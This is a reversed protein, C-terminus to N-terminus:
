TYRKIYRIKGSDYCRLLGLSLAMEHETAGVAGAGKLIPIRWRRKDERKGVSPNYYKYDPPLYSDIIFNNSVYVNHDKDVIDLDAFSRIISPTYQKEFYSLLKGFAGTVMSNAFRDLSFGNDSNKENGPIKNFGIASVMVDKHFLGIRISCIRSGLLHNGDMFSSFDNQSISRITTERAGIRDGDKLLLNYLFKKVVDQNSLWDDEWIQILRIGNNNVLERKKHHQDYNCRAESHWYVGNFEIGINRSPMFVDITHKTAGFRYSCVADECISKIYNFFMIERTSRNTQERAVDIEIGYQNLSFKVACPHVGIIDGVEALRKGSDYTESLWKRDTLFTYRVEGLRTQRYKKIIDQKEDASKNQKTESSVLMRKKHYGMDMSLHPVGYREKNTIERKNNANVVNEQDSYYKRSAEAIKEKNEQLQSAAIVGYTELMTNERSAIVTDWDVGEQGKLMKSKVEPDNQCCKMSCYKSWQKKQKNWKMHTNKCVHCEPIVMADHLIMKILDPFPFSHEGFLASATKVVETVIDHYGNKNFYSESFRLPVPRGEKYLIETLKNKMDNRRLQILFYHYWMPICIAVM